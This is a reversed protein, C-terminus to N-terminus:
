STLKTKGRPFHEASLLRPRHPFAFLSLFLSLSLGPWWSCTQFFQSMKTRLTLLIVSPPDWFSPSLPEPLWLLLLLCPSALPTTPPSSSILLHTDDLSSSSCTERPSSVRSHWMRFLLQSFSLLFHWDTWCNVPWQDGQSACHWHVTFAPALGWPCPLSCPQSATYVPLPSWAKCYYDQTNGSVGM